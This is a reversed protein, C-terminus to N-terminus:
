AGEYLGGTVVMHRGVRLQMRSGVIARPAWIGNQQGVQDRGGLHTMLRGWKEEWMGSDEGVYRPAGEVYRLVGGM